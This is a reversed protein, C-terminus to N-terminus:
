FVCLMTVLETSEIAAFKGVVTAHHAALLYLRKLVDCKFGIVTTLNHNVLM